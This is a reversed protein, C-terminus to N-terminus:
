FRACLPFSGPVTNLLVSVRDEIIFSEGAGALQHQGDGGKTVVRESTGVTLSNHKIQKGQIDEVAAAVPEDGM